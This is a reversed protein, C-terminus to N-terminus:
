KVMTTGLLTMMNIEVNDFGIVMKRDINIQAKLPM